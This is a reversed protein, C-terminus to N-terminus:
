IFYFHAKLIAIFKPLVSKGSFASIFIVLHLVIIKFDDLGEILDSNTREIIKVGRLISVYYSIKLSDKQDILTNKFDMKVPRNSLAALM